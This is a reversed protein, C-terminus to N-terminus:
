TAVCRIVKGEVIWLGTCDWRLAAAISSLLSQGASEVSQATTVINIVAHQLERRIREIDAGVPGSEGRMLRAYCFLDQTVEAGM